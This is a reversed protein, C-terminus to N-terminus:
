KSKTLKGSRFIRIKFHEQTARRVERKSAKYTTNRYNIAWQRMEELEDATPIRLYEPLTKYSMDRENKVALKAIKQKTVRSPNAPETQAMNMLETMNQEQM